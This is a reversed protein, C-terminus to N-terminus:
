EKVFIEPAPVESTLDVTGSFELHIEDAPLDGWSERYEDYVAEIRAYEEDPFEGDTESPHEPLALTNGASDYASVGRIVRYFGGEDDYESETEFSVSTAEPGAWRRAFERVDHWVSTRRIRSALGWLDEAPVRKLPIAEQVLLYENM